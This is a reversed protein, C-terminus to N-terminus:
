SSSLFQELFTFWPSAILASDHWLDVNSCNNALLVKLFADLKDTGTIDTDFGIGAKAGLTSVAFQVQQEFWDFKNTYTEMTVITDVSTQGLLTYNWLPSWTAVDAALVFGEAHLAQAFTDLFRAYTISDAATVNNDPEFDIHYGMYGYQKATLIAATMLPQPNSFLLRMPGIEGSTLMPFYPFGLAQVAERVDSVPVGSATAWQFTGNVSVQWNEASVVRIVDKHESLQQLDQTLNFPTCRELCMWVLSSKGSLLERGRDLMQDGISRSVHPLLLAAALAVSVLCSRPAM